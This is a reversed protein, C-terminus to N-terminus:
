NSSMCLRGCFICLFGSCWFWHNFQSILHMSHNWWKVDMWSIRMCIFRPMCLLTFEPIFFPGVSHCFLLICFCQLFPSFSFSLWYNCNRKKDNNHSDRYWQITASRGKWVDASFSAFKLYLTSYTRMAYPAPMCSHLEFSFWNLREKIEKRKPTIAIVKWKLGKCM